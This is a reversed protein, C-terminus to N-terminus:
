FVEKFFSFENKMHFYDVINNEFLSHNRGVVIVHNMDNNFCITVGVVASSM